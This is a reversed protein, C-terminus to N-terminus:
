TYSSNHLGVSLTKFCSTVILVLSTMSISGGDGDWMGAEKIGLKGKKTEDNERVLSLAWLLRWGSCWGGYGTDFTKSCPRPHLTWVLCRGLEPYSTM